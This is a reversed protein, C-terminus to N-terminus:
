KVQQQFPFLLVCDHKSLWSGHSVCSALETLWSTTSYRETYQPFRPQVAEQLLSNLYSIDQWPELHKAKTFLDTYFHHMVDGAEFLFFNQLFSLMNSNTGPYTITTSHLYKGIASFHNGNNSNRCSLRLGKLDLINILM